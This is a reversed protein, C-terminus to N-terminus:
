PSPTREIPVFYRKAAAFVEPDQEAIIELYRTAKVAYEAPADGATTGAHEAHLFYRIISRKTAPNDFQAANYMDYLRDVETTDGLLYLDAIAIDALDPRDLLLRMSAALREKPLTDEAFQRMYRLAQIAAYTEIFPVDPNILKEREILALGEEGTLLLFGIMVGNIGESSSTAPELIIRRMVEADEATGCYGLILGYLALRTPETEEDTLWTIVKEHDMERAVPVLDANDAFAFEGWAEAAIMPDPNELFEARYRLKEQAEATRAPADRFYTHCAESIAIVKRWYPQDEGEGLLLYFDDPIGTRFRPVVIHDTSAFSESADRLIDTVEFETSGPVIVDAQQEVPLLPAADVWRALIVVEAGRLEDSLTPPESYCIFDDDAEVPSVVLPLLCLAIFFGTSNVKSIFSVNM